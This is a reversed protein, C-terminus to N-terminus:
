PTNRGKGDKAILILVFVGASLYAGLLIVVFLEASM